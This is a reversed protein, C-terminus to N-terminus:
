KGYVPLNFPLDGYWNYPLVSTVPSFLNRQTFFDKREKIENQTYFSFECLIRSSLTLTSLFQSLKRKYFSLKCLINKHKFESPCFKLDVSCVFEVVSLVVVTVSVAWDSKELGTVGYM